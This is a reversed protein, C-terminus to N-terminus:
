PPGWERPRARDDPHPGGSPAPGRRALWFGIPVLIMLGIVVLPLLFEMVPRRPRSRRARERRGLRRNLVRTLPCGGYRDRGPLLATLVALGGSRWKVM